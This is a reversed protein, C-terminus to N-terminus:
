STAAADFVYNATTRALHYKNLRIIDMAFGARM